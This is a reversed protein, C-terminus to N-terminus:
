EYNRAARLARAFFDWDGTPPLDQGHNSYWGPSDSVWAELAELFSDLTRNEWDAGNEVHDARFRALFVSFAERDAFHDDPSLPATM